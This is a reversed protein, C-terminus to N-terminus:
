ASTTASAVDDGANSSLLVADPLAARRREREAAVGLSGIVDPVYKGTLGIPVGQSAM